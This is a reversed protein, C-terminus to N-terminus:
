SLPHIKVCQDCAVEKDQANSIHSTYIIISGIGIMKQFHSRVWQIRQDDLGNFPEDLFIFSPTTRQALPILRLFQKEGTSLETIKKGVFQSIFGGEQYGCGNLYARVPIDPLPDHLSVYCIQSCYEPDRFHLVQGNLLMQVHGRQLHALLELLTTKGCGNPGSLHYIHGPVFELPTTLEFTGLEFSQQASLITLM